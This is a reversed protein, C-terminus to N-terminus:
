GLALFEALAAQWSRIPHDLVAQIKAPDFRSNAPRRAKVPFEGSSCPMVRDALKLRGAIFCAVDYRSAYGANAFHFLGQHRGRILREIAQAMDVTWTPAGFQDNVVKLEAGVRARELFKAIFSVGQRGYSWEVRLVAHECGTERLAVEGKWKSDGYVNVPAPVDTERYPRDSQGDFVFDTSVHIVFMGQQKALRGLNGVATANVALAIAPQEEAKNVNTYAACNVVVAVGQLARELHDARTIDWDPLDWVQVAHGNQRLHKALDSGLMGRGGLIAVSESM